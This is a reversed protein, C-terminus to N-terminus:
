LELFRLSHPILSKAVESRRNKEIVHSLWGIFTSKLLFTERWCVAAEEGLYRRRREEARASLVNRVANAGSSWTMLTRKLALDRVAQMARPM